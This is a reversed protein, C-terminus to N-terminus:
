QGKVLNSSDVLIVGTFQVLLRLGVEQARVPISEELLSSM